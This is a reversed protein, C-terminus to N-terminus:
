RFSIGAYWCIPLTGDTVPQTSIPVGRWPADRGHHGDVVPMCACVVAERVRGRGRPWLDHPLLMLIARLNHLNLLKDVHVYCSRADFVRATPASWKLCGIDAAATERTQECGLSSVNGTDDAYPDEGGGLGWCLYSDTNV